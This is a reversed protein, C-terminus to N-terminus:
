LLWPREKFEEMMGEYVEYTVCVDKCNYLKWKKKNKASWGHGEDKYYPERTYQRTLHQLKHPLEPYLTHHMLLTDRVERFRFGLMEYLNADFSIFNQGLQIVNTFLKDLARWLEITESKSERFLDISIGYNKSPALGVILPYGPHKGYYPSPRKKTGAKPYITEVDNSILECELFSKLIYLIEDFSEFETQLKRQPLPELVGHEKYYDLESRAKALDLVVQDRLKYQRAVLDPPLTPYVYHQYNLRPAILPSGAYKFIASDTEPNYNKNRNHLVLEPCLKAGVADLPILIKPQYHAIDIGELNRYANTHETDPRYCTVFYDSFGADKMMADWMYGLGSSFLYGRELDRSLPKDVIVWVDCNPNGKNGILPM